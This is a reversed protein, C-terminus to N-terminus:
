KSGQRYLRVLMGPLFVEQLTDLKRDDLVETEWGHNKATSLIRQIATKCGYALYVEGTPVLHNSADALISDLLRFQFDYFAYDEIRNPQGDEWPPNTIIFDFREDDKLAVYANLNGPEVKRLDFHKDLDLRKANYAACELANANVDTAVVHSAGAKLCCLSILGSGTGLEFIRKGEVFRSERIRKRLSTTDLSEWFVTDLIALPESFDEVREWRRINFRNNQLTPTKEEIRTLNSAPPAETTRDQAIAVSAFFIFGVRRFQLTLSSAWGHVFM